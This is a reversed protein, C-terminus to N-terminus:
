FHWDHVMRSGHLDRVQSMAM